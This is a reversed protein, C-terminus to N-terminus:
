NASPFTRSVPSGLQNALNICTSKPTRDSRISEYKQKRRLTHPALKILQGRCSFLDLARERNRTLSVVRGRTHTPTHYSSM